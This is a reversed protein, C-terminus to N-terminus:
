AKLSKRPCLSPGQRSLLHSSLNHEERQLRDKVERGDGGGRRYIFPTATKHDGAFPRTKCNFPQIHAPLPNRQPSFFLSLHHPLYSGLSTPLVGSVLAKQPWLCMVPRSQCWSRVGLSCSPPLLVPVKGFQAFLSQVQSTPIFQHLRPTPLPNQCFLPSPTSGRWHHPSPFPPTVLKSSTPTRSRWFLIAYLRFHEETIFGVGVLEPIVVRPKASINRGGEREGVM